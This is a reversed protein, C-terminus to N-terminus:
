TDIALLDVILWGKAQENTLNLHHFYDYKKNPFKNSKPMSM